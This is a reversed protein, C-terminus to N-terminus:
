RGDVSAKSISKLHHPVYLLWLVTLFVQSRQALGLADPGPLDLYEFTIIEWMTWLSTALLLTALVWTAWTAPVLPDHRTLAMALAISAVLLFVGALTSTLNHINHSLPVDFAADRRACALDNSPTCSMPFTADLVTSLGFGAISWRGVRWWAPTGPARWLLMAAVLSVGAIADSLRFLHAFPQGEAYLESVFSTRPSLESGVWPAIVWTSYTLAALYFCGIVLSRRRSPTM